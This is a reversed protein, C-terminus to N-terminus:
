RNNSNIGPETHMVQLGAMYIYEHYVISYLFQSITNADIYAHNHDIYSGRYKLNPHLPPGFRTSTDRWSHAGNRTDIELM